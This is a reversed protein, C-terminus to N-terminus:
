NFLDSKTDRCSFYDDFDTNEWYDINAILRDVSKKMARVSSFPRKSTLVFGYAPVTDSCCCEIRWKGDSYNRNVCRYLRGLRVFDDCMFFIMYPEKCHGCCSETTIVHSLSNLKDCLTVCEEDMDGIYMRKSTSKDKADM